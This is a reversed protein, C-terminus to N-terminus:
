SVPTEKPQTTCAAQLRGFLRLIENMTTADLTYGVPGRIIQNVGRPPHVDEWPIYRNAPPREARQTLNTYVWEALDHHSSGVLLPPTLVVQEPLATEGASALHNAIANDTSVALHQGHPETAGLPRLAVAEPAQEAVQPWTMEALRM